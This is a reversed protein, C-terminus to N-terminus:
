IKITNFKKIKLYGKRSNHNLRVIKNEFFHFSGLYFVIDGM